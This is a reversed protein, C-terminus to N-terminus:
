RSRRASTCARRGDRRLGAPRDGLVRRRLRAAGVRVARGPVHGAGAFGAPCVLSRRRTPSSRATSSRTTAVDTARMGLTDWTEEIRYSPRTATSSATCSRRTPPTAPTWRTCASTPGCRRCAASSRTAPSRGAARRRARGEVVVAAAPHRQRGRRPRRRVRPGRRGRDLVWDGSPDGPATCTPACGSGTSTCTSPSPPRRRSTPSAGSCGTSRPSTSARRRRVRRAAARTSTAPSRAAGRLGRHLVPQRPRLRPAREDFRALMEDTLLADTSVSAPTPTSTTTSMAVVTRRRPPRTCGHGGRIRDVSAVHFGRRRCAVVPDSQRRSPPWGARHRRTFLLDEVQQRAVEGVHLDGVRQRDRHAGDLAVHRRQQALQCSLSRRLRARRPPRTPAPAPRGSGWAAVDKTPRSASRRASTSAM